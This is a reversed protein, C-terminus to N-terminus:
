HRFSELGTVVVKRTEIDQESQAIREGVQLSNRVIDNLSVGLYSAGTVSLRGNLISGSSLIEDLRRMRSYHGPLYTPICNRQNTVRIVTDPHETISRPIGLCRELTRIARQKVDEETPLEKLQSYHPGGIMVTLKTVAGNADDQGPIADSDFVVGLIGDPNNPTEARPILFGFGEDVKLLRKSSNSSSPPIVVNVVSVNTSPNYTLLSSLTNDIEPGLTNKLATSPLASIVRSVTVPGSSSQLTIASTGSSLNQIAENSRLSVNKHRQLEAQLAKTLDGIGGQFSYVSAKDLSGVFSEFDSGVFRQISQRAIQTEQEEELSIAEQEPTPARYRKNWKPPLIARLLSGHKQETSWLFPLTSRVSLQRTDAAYIGHIVASLVNNVLKGGFKDGFRRKIFSEISEDLLYERERQRQIEKSSESKPRLFRSPRFPERLLGVAASSVLSRIVPLRLAASLFASWSSPLKNLRGGFWIFRNKASPATNPVIILRDKLGLSVALDLLRWGAVGKPRLSRPGGEILAFGQDSPLKIRQSQIWGGLEPQSEYLLIQRHPLLRALQLTVVLGAIGGGLVAIPQQEASRRLPPSTGSTAQDHVPRGVHFRRKSSQSWSSISHLPRSRHAAVKSVTPCGGGIRPLVLLKVTDIM